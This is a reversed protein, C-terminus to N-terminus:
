GVVFFNLVKILHDSYVRNILMFIFECSEAHECEVFIFVDFVIIDIGFLGFGNIEILIGLIIGIM